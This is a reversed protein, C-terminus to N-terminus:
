AIAQKLELFPSSIHGKMQVIEKMAERDPHPHTKGFGLEYCEIFHRFETDKIEKDLFKQLLATQDLADQTATEGGIARIFASKLRHAAGKLGSSKELTISAYMREIQDSAKRAQQSLARSEQKHGAILKDYLVTSGTRTLYEQRFRDTWHGRHEWNANDFGPYFWPEQQHFRYYALRRQHAAASINIPM